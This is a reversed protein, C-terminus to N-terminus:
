KSVVMLPDMARGRRRVEFHLHPGTSKGTNGIEAIVEGRSVNQGKQTFNKRAHAYITYLGYKHGIVTINGYGTYDHGSYVVVGDDVSLIHAGERAPIDIGDHSKGWRHGFESSVQKSSPVPWLFDGGGGRIWPSSFGDGIIGWNLPIFVVEGPVFNLNPNQTKIIWGPVDFEKALKDVSDGNQLKLYKGSKISGCSQLLSIILIIFILKM